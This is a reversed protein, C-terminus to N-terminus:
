QFLSSPLWAVFAVIAGAILTTQAAWALKDAPIPNRDVFRTKLYWVLFAVPISFLVTTINTLRPIGTLQLWHDVNDFLPTDQLIVPSILAFFLIAITVGYASILEPEKGKTWINLIYTLVFGIIGTAITGFSPSGKLCVMFFVIIALAFKRAASRDGDNSYFSLVNENPSM